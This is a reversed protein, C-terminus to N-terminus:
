QGQDLCKVRDRAHLTWHLVAMDVGQPSFLPWSRAQHCRPVVTGHARVDSVGFNGPLQEAPGMCVSAVVARSFMARNPLFYPSVQSENSTAGAVLALGFGAGVFCGIYSGAVLM